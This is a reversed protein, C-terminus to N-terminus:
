LKRLIVVSGQDRRFDYYNRLVQETNLNVITEQIEGNKFLPKNTQVFYFILDM